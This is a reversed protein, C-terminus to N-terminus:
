RTGSLQFDIHRPLSQMWRRQEPTVRRDAYRYWTIALTSCSSDADFGCGCDPESFALSEECNGMVVRIGWDRILQLTQDPEACYAVLDGTCIVRDASIGLDLARQRMAVTAAFNSYPGGFILLRDDINAPDPM